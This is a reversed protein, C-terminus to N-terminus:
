EGLKEIFLHITKKFPTKGTEFIDNNGADDVKYFYKPDNAKKFLEGSQEYPVIRDNSGHVILIPAKIKNIKSINDYNSKFFMSPFLRFSAKLMQKATTFAGLTIVGACKEKQALEIAVAAGLSEGYFIINSPNINQSKMLDYAARGDLYLGEESPIGESKGYGRYDFIFVKLGLKHLFEIIPLRNSINGSGGHFYLISFKSPEELPAPFFWGNLVVNDKTKFSIDEALLEQNVPLSEMNWGPHYLFRPETYRIWFFASIIILAGCIFYKIKKNM